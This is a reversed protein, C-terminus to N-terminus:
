NGATQWGSWHVPRPQYPSVPPVPPAPPPPRTTTPRQWPLEWPSPARAAHYCRTLCSQHYYQVLVPSRIFSNYYNLTNRCKDECPQAHIQALSSECVARGVLCAIWTALLLSLTFSSVPGPWWARSRM